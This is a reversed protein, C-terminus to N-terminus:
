NYWGGTGRCGPCQGSGLCVGCNGNKRTSSLGTGKCTKCNGTGSCSYCKHWKKETELPFNNFFDGGGEYSNSSGSSEPIEFGGSGRCWICLVQGNGRCTVCPVWEMYSRYTMFNFRSQASGGQGYCMYCLTIGSGKCNKCTVYESHGSFALVLGFIFVFFVKKMNVKYKEDRM